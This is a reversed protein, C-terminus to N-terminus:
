VGVGECILMASKGNGTKTKKRWACMMFSSSFACRRPLKLQQSLPNTTHLWIKWIAVTSRLRIYIYLTCSFLANVNNYPINIIGHLRSKVHQNESPKLELHIESKARGKKMSKLCDTWGGLCQAFSMPSALPPPSPPSRPASIVRCCASSIPPIHTVSFFYPWVEHIM